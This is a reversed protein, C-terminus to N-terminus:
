YKYCVRTCSGHLAAYSHDQGLKKHLITHFCGVVRGFKVNRGLFAIVNYVQLNMHLAAYSHNQGLKKHLITHFCGVVRGFKVNQGLFAIVDFNHLNMHLAAYSNGQGRQRIYFKQPGVV